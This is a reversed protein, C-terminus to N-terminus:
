KVRVGGDCAWNSAAFLNPRADRARQHNLQECHFPTAPEILQRDVLSRASELHRQFPSEGFDRNRRAPSLGDRADFGRRVIGPRVRSSEPQPIGAM